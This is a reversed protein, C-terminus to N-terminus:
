IVSVAFREADYGGITLAASALSLSFVKHEIQRDNKLDTLLADTGAPSLGLVGDAKMSALGQAHDAAIISKNPMCLQVNRKKTDPVATGYFCVNEVAKLGEM